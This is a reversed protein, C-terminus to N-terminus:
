TWRSRHILRLHVCRIKASRASTKRAPVSAARHAQAVDLTRNAKGKTAFRARTEDLPQAHADASVRHEPTHFGGIVPRAKLTAPM